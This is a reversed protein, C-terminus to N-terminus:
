YKRDRDSRRHSEHHRDYGNRHHSRSYRKERERSRRRSGHSDRDDERRRSREKHHSTEKSVKDHYDDKESYHGYSSDRSSVKDSLTKEHKDFSHHVCPIDLHSERQRQDSNNISDNNLKSTDVQVSTNVIYEQYLEMQNNIVERMVETYSKNRGTHM